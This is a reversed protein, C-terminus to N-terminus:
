LKNFDSENRKNQMKIFINTILKSLLFIVCLAIFLHLYNAWKHLHFMHHMVLIPKAIFAWFLSLVLTYLYFNKNNNLTWQYLLMYLVPALSAELTVSGPLFPLMQYPYEWLGHKVGWIDIYGFWVHINFGYFGILFIKKRDILFYVAILPIVFLMLVIWFKLDTLNSYLYWYETELESLQEYMSRIKNLHESQDQDMKVEM